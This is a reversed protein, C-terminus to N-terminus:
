RNRPSRCSHWGDDELAFFERLVDAIRECETRLRILRSVDKIDDSIPSEDRYYIDILRRYILDEMPDLHATHGLYDGINFQYYHM